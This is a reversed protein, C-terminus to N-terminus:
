VEGELVPIYSPADVSKRLRHLQQAWGGEDEDLLLEKRWQRMEADGVPLHGDLQANLWNGFRRGIEAPWDQWLWQERFESEEKIAARRPDLWLQEAEALEVRADRSWGADLGHQYENSMQVLEDILSDVYADVKNKTHMNQPPDSKLFLLLARASIQVEERVGYIRDFVSSFRWPARRKPTTWTPPACSLLYNNGRRDNNLQSVNRPHAGGLKQVALDPYDRVVGDHWKSERRAQRALKGEEGFRDEQIVNYVAHALSTAYLPALLHYSNNNSPDEGVLWYLQKARTDTALKSKEKLLSAYRAALDKAEDDSVNEPSFALAVDQDKADLWAGLSKGEFDIDLLLYLEYAAANHAGDGTTDALSGDTTLLHSGVEKHAPLTDFRVNPNSVLKAKLDPHSAKAVHTAVVINAACNGGKELISALQYKEIAKNTEQKALADTKGAWKSLARELRKSVHANLLEQVAESRPTSRRTTNM